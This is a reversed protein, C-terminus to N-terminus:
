VTVGCRPALGGLDNDAYSPILIARYDPGLEQNWKGEAAQLLVKANLRLKAQIGIQTGDARRVLLIDWGETEAYAQWDGTTEAIFGACLDAETAFRDPKKM